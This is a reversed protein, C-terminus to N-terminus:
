FSTEWSVLLTRKPAPRFFAANSFEAYLQDTFNEVGLVLSHNMRGHNFLKM